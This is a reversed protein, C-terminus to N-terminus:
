QWNQSKILSFDQYFSKLLWVSLYISLHDQYWTNKRLIVTYWKGKGPYGFHFSFNQNRTKNVYEYNKKEEFEFFIVSKDGNESAFKTNIHLPYLLPWTKTSSYFFFKYSKYIVTYILCSTNWYSEFLNEM